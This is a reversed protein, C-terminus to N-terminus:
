MVVSLISLGAMVGLLFIVSGALLLGIHAHKELVAGTSAEYYLNMKDGIRFTKISSSNISCRRINERGGAEYKVVPYYTFKDSKLIKTGQSLQRTYIDIIEADIRQLNRRRLSFYNWLLGAGAGVLILTLCIMAEVERKQNEYMALLILLAGGTMMALPHFVAEDEKVSLRDPEGGRGWFIRVQQGRSYETPSKVVRQVRRMTGPQFYEATIDYYNMTERGRSDHKIIHECEIVDAATSSEPNRRRLWSKVQGSGVLFIIIGPIYPLYMSIYDEM